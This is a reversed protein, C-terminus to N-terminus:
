ASIATTDDPQPLSTMQLSLLKRKASRPHLLNDLEDFAQKTQYYDENDMGENFQHMLALYRESMTKDDMYMLEDLIEDVTWGQFNTLAPQHISVCEGEKKLMVININEASQVILPSHATVIFQTQPFIDSLFGIIKRQWDPHLHLDIEDLLVIAPEALPNESEPYRLFMRYMFDVLWSLMSQYGYGLDRLRVKGFDTHFLVYTRFPNEEIEVSFDQVDPLIRKGGLVARLREMEKKAKENGKTAVSDLQLIWEEPNILNIDNSFLSTTTDNQEQTIASNTNSKRTVGYGYIILSKWYDKRYSVNRSSLKGLISYQWFDGFKFSNIEKIFTTAGITFPYEEVSFLRWLYVGKPEYWFQNLQPNPNDKKAELGALAKLITTKGTNNNGLIVTWMAPKGEPTSLNIDHKGQFCKLNELTLSAFYVAPNETNEM